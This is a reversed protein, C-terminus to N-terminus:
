GNNKEKLKTEIAARTAAVMEDAESGEICDVFNEVWDKLLTLLKQNVTELKEIRQKLVDARHMGLEYAQKTEQVWQTKETWENYALALADYAREISYMRRLEAATEERFRLSSYLYEGQDNKAAWYGALRLAKPQDAM